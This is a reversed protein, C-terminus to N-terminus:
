RLTKPNTEWVLCPYSAPHKRNKGEPNVQMQPDVEEAAAQEVPVEVMNEPAHVPNM